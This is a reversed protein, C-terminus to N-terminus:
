TLIGHSSPEPELVLERIWPNERCIRLAKRYELEEKSKEGGKVQSSCMIKLM